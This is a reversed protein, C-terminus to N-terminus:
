DALPEVAFDLSGEPVQGVTALVGAGEGFVRRAVRQVDAVSVAEVRALLEEPSPIEGWVLESRGLRSMRGAPDEMSLALSGRMHGKAREVEEEGVEGAALSAAEGRVIRLVEGATTAQTGAYVSLSGNELHLHDACYISYALGRKERVEQFLRSSMGGGYLISLVGLAYRDEDHRSVSSMGWVLHTEESPRHDYVAVEHGFAVQGNARRRVPESGAGFAERVLREVAEHTVNGAVSIVLRDPVYSEEYYSRVGKPTLAGVTHEYGMVPRGLPHSPWAEAAFLDHVHDEPVDHAMAIEELIVRQESAIHDAQLSANCFMDGLIETAMALDEELVRAYFCTHERSAYANFDGGVADFANAIDRASRSPTGKFLMHELFHSAGALEEPEDRSGLDLWLGIAASRVWPMAETVLIVGPLVESRVAADAPPTATM